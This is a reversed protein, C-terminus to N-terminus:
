RAPAASGQTRPAGGEWQWTRGRRPGTDVPVMVLCGDRLSFLAIALIAVEVIVAAMIKETKDM